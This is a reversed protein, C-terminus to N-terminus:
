TILKQHKTPFRKITFNTQNGISGFAQSSRSGQKGIM